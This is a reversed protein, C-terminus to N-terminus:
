DIEEFRANDILVQVVDAFSIGRHKAVKPVLSTSTFGPHTNIELLRYDNGSVLFDVRSICAAGITKHLKEASVFLANELNRDIKAPVLYQTKNSQYKANYSYFEEAPIIQFSGLAKDNLIAVGTEVGAFYEEIMFMNGDHFNKVEFIQSDTLKQGANLLFTAVSSGGNVPKLFSKRKIEYRGDIVDFKSIYVSELANIGAARAYTNTLIKNMGIQSAVVGSHTYPIKMANLITQIYGDEGYKGHMANFIVDITAARVDEIFNHTFPILLADLGIQEIAECIAKASRQSVDSEATNVSYVVGVKM